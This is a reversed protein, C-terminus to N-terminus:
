KNTNRDQQGKIWKHMKHELKAAIHKQNSCRHSTPAALLLPMVGRCIAAFYPLLYAHVYAHLVHIGTQSLPSLPYIITIACVVM